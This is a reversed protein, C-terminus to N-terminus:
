EPPPYKNAGSYQPFYPHIQPDVMQPAMHPPVYMPPLYCYDPLAPGRASLAMIDQVIDYLSVSCNYLSSWCTVMHQDRDFLRQNTKLDAELKLTETKLENLLGSLQEQGGPPLAGWLGREPVSASFAAKREEQAANAERIEKGELEAQAESVQKPKKNQAAEEKQGRAKDKEQDQDQDQDQESDQEQEQELAKEEKKPKKGGDWKAEKSNQKAKAKAKAKHTSKAKAKAQTKAGPLKEGGQLKPPRGPKGTRGPIRGENARAKPGSGSGLEANHGAQM